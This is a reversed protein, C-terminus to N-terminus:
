DEKSAAPAAAKRRSAADTTSTAAEPAAVTDPAPAADAGEDAVQWGRPEWVLEFATRSVAAPPVDPLKPHSMELWLTPEDAM